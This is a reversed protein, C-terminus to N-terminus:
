KAVVLASILCWTLNHGGCLGDIDLCEGAFSVHKERISRLNADVEELAIGGITVQSSAFGYTSDVHFEMGKLAKALQYCDKKSAVNSVGVGAIKMVYDRLPAPLYADLFFSPHKNMSDFLDAVLATLTIEPFLDLVISLREPNELHNIYSAANFIVIGSLGDDKFLVEGEEERAVVDGLLITVKTKHRQGSISKTKEKTKIPCLGPKLPVIKYGHKEFVPFLSGDSGLNAQSKGGTVFVLEDFSFAGADTKLTCPEGNEYDLVKTSMHLIVGLEELVQALYHVYSPASFSVPYVYDQDKEKKLIVGLSALQHQLEGFPYDKQYKQFFSPHNFHEGSTNINLVNAHGNGTALLKRGLKENKDFLHVEYEPHNKKLFIAAYLGAGSAGIVAIKM